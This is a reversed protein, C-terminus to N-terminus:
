RAQWHITTQMRDDDIKIMELFKHGKTTIVFSHFPYKQEKVFQLSRMGSVYKILRSYSMNSKTLVYTVREPKQMIELLDSMITLQDRRRTIGM